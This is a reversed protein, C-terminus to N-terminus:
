AAVSGRQAGHSPTSRRPSCLLLLFTASYNSPSCLRDTVGAAGVWADPGSPPRVRRRRTRVAVSAPAKRTRRPRQRLATRMMAAAVSAPPACRALRGGGGGGDRSTGVLTASLPPPARVM